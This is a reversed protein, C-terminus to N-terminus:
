PLPAFFKKFEEEIARLKEATYIAPNQMFFALAPGALKSGLFQITEQEKWGQAKALTKIQNFFFDVLSADGDFAITKFTIKLNAIDAM